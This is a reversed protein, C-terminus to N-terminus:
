RRLGEGETTKPRLRRDRNLRKADQEAPSSGAPAWGARLRLERWRLRLDALRHGRAKQGFARWRGPPV